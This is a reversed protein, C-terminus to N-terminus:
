IEDQLGYSCSFLEGPRRESSVYDVFEAILREQVIAGHLLDLYLSFCFAAAKLVNKASEVGGCAVFTDHIM